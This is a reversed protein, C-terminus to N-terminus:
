PAKKEAGISQFDGESDRYSIKDIAKLSVDKVSSVTIKPSASSTDYEGMSIHASSEDSMFLGAFCIESGDKLHVTIEKSFIRCNVLRMTPM